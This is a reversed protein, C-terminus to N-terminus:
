FSEKENTVDFSNWRYVQSCWLLIENRGLFGWFLFFFVKERNILGYWFSILLNFPSKNVSMLFLIFENRWLFIEKFIYIRHVDNPKIHQQFIELGNIVTTLKFWPALMNSHFINIICLGKRIRMDCHKRWLCLIWVTNCPILSPLLNFLWTSCTDELYICMHSAYIKTNVCLYFRTGACWVM